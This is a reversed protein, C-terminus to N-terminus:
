RSGFGRAIAACKWCRGYYNECGLSVHARQMLVLEYHSAERVRRLFSSDLFRARDETLRLM